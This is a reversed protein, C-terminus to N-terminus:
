SGPGGWVGVGWGCGCVQAIETWLEELQQEAQEALARPPQPLRAYVAQMGALSALHPAVDPLSDLSTLASQISAQQAEIRTHLGPLLDLM